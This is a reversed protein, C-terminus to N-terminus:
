VPEELMLGPVHRQMSATLRLVPQRRRVASVDSLGVIEPLGINQDLLVAHLARMTTRYSSLVNRTSPLYSSDLLYGRERLAKGNLSILDHNRREVRQSRM